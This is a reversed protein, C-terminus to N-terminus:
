SKVNRRQIDRRLNEAAETTRFSRRWVQGRTRTHARRVANEFGIGYPKLAVGICYAVHGCLQPRDFGLGAYGTVETSRIEHLEDIKSLVAFAIDQVYHRAEPVDIEVVRAGAGLARVALDAQRKSEAPVIVDGFEVAYRPKRRKSGGM